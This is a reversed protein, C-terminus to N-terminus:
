RRGSTPSRSGATSRRAAASCWRASCPPSSRTTTSCRCRPGCCTTPPANGASLRDPPDAGRPLQPQAHLGEVPRHHRRHLRVHRPGVSPDHRRPADGGRHAPRGVPPRDRAALRHGPRRRRRGGDDDDVVIVHRLDPLDDIVAAVRDALDAPRRPRTAGSDHLQHRLYEGKYATNIPVAVHGGRVAAGGRSCRRRRTRWCRRGGSRGARRRAVGARQRAALRHRGGPRRHVQTGCVDLYESDPDSELRADLLAPITTQDGSIWTRDTM